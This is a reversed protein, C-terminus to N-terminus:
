PGACGRCGGALELGRGDAPASGAGGALAPELGSPLARAVSAPAQLAGGLDARLSHMAQDLSLPDATQQLAELEALGPLTLLVALEAGEDSGALTQALATTLAAEVAPEPADAARALLIQRFLRQGADWRCFPDDDAAFLQLTETLPQDM